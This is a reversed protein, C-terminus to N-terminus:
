AGPSAAPGPLRRARSGSVSILLPSYRSSAVSIISMLRGSSSSSGSAARRGPCPRASSPAAPGASTSGRASPARCRWRRPPRLVRSRGRASGRIPGDGYCGGPASRPGRRGRRPPSALVPPRVRSRAAVDAQDAALELRQPRPALDQARLDVAALEVHVRQHARADVEGCRRRTRGSRARRGCGPARDPWRSRTSTESPRHRSRRAGPARRRSPPARAPRRARPRPSANAIWVKLERVRSTLTSQTLLKSSRMPSGTRLRIARASLGPWYVRIPAPAVGRAQEALPRLAVPEQQQEGVALGVVEVM